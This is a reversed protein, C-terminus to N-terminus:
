SKSPGASSQPRGNRISESQINASDSAKPLTAVTRSGERGGPNHTKNPGHGLLAQERRGQESIQKHITQLEPAVLSMELGYRIENDSLQRFGIPRGGEM